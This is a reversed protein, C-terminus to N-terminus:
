LAAAIAAVVAAVTAIGTLILAVNARKEARKARKEARKARKEASMARDEARAAIENAATAASAQQVTAAAAREDDTRISLARRMNIAADPNGDYVRERYEMDAARGQNQLRAGEGDGFSAVLFSWYEDDTLSRIKSKFEERATM